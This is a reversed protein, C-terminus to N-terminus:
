KFPDGVDRIREGGAGDRSDVMWRYVHLLAAPGLYKHGNWRAHSPALAAPPPLPVAQM